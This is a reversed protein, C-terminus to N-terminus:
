VMSAREGSVSSWNGDERNEGKRRERKKVNGKM